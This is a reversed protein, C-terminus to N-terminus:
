IHVVMGESLLVSDHRPEVVSGHRLNEGLDRLLRFCVAADVFCRRRHRSCSLCPLFVSARVHFRTPRVLFGPLVPHQASGSLLTSANRRPAHVVRISSRGPSKCAKPSVGCPNLLPNAGHVLFGGRCRNIVEIGRALSM